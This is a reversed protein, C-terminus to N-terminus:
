TPTILRIRQTYQDGVVIVGSSPYVALGYPSAFSAGAGTGDAFANSGSGALTTVVGTPTILRIRHNETDAVIINESSPLVGVGNPYAFSAGAGTGNAFAPTGSGALTTVVGSNTAYTATAVLRIRNNDRDAVIITGNSLLAVGTPVNFSAGTGTGDAFAPSGSGALTTVVGSNAAYTATSVLRIRNNGGDAVVINGNSLVAVGTPMNFSAGTGTGDGFAPSGSGALTTVVGAPTILRIRHNDRDAVIVNGNPLTAVGIPRNFAAASGTGEAFSFTNVTGALNTVVGAPTVLRVLGANQDGVVIVGSSSIIAVGNPYSFNSPANAFTGSGGGALTTVVALKGTWVTVVAEVAAVVPYLSTNFVIGYQSPNTVSLAAQV